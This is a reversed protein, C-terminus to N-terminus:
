RTFPWSSEARLSLDDGDPNTISFQTYGVATYPEDDPRRPLGSVDIRSFFSWSAYNQPMGDDVDYKDMTGSGPNRDILTAKEKVQLKFLCSYNVTSDTVYHHAYIAHECSIISFDEDPAFHSFNGIEAYGYIFINPDDDGVVVSGSKSDDALVMLSFLSMSALMLTALTFVFFRQM